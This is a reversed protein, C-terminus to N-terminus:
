VDLTQHKDFMVGYSRNIFIKVNALREEIDVSVGAM